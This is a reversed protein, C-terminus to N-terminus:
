AIWKYDCAHCYYKRRRKFLTSDPAPLGAMLKSPDSNNCKPCTLMGKQPKNKGILKSEQLTMGVKEPINANDRAQSGIDEPIAAAIVEAATPDANNPSAQNSAQQSRLRRNHLVVKRFRLLIFVSGGIILLGGMAPLLPIEEDLLNRWSGLEWLSGGEHDVDTDGIRANLRGYSSWKKFDPIKSLAKQFQQILGARFPNDTGYLFYIRDNLELELQKFDEDNWDSVSKGYLTNKPSSWFKESLLTEKEDLFDFGNFLLHVQSTAWVCHSYIFILFLIILPSKKMTM